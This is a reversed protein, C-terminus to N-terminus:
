ARTTPDTPIALDAGRDRSTRDFAHGRHAHAYPGIAFQPTDMLEAAIRAVHHPFPEIPNPIASYKIVDSRGVPHFPKVDEIPMCARYHEDLGVRGADFRDELRKIQCSAIVRLNRCGLHNM